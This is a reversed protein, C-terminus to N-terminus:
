VVVVTVLGGLVHGGVVVVVTGKHPPNRTGHASPM